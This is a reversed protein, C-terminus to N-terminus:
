NIKAGFINELASHIVGEPLGTAASLRQIGNSESNGNINDLFDELLYRASYIAQEKEEKTMEHIPKM